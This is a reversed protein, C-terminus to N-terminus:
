EDEEQLARILRMAQRRKEPSLKQMGRAFVRIDEDLKEEEWGMLMAASVGLAHAFDEVREAKPETIGAEYRQVASESLGVSRAVESLTLGRAERERKLREGFRM